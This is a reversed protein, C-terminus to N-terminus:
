SDQGPHSMPGGSGRLEKARSLMLTLHGLLLRIVSGQRGVHEEAPGQCVKTSTTTPAAATWHWASSDSTLAGCWQGAARIARVGVENLDHPIPQFQEGIWVVVSGNELLAMSHMTGLAIDVVKATTLEMPLVSTISSNRGGWPQLACWLVPSCADTPHAKLIGFCTRSFRM